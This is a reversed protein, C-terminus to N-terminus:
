NCFITACGRKEKFFFSVDGWGVIKHKSLTFITQFQESPLDPLSFSLFDVNFSPSLTQAVIKILSQLYKTNKPGSFYTTQLLM